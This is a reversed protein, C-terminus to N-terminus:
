GSRPRAEVYGEECLIAYAHEVTIVSVGSQEALARKAPLRSGYPYAGQRIADRLRHYLLLYAFEKSPLYM